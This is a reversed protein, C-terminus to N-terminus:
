ELVELIDTVQSVDEDPGFRTLLAERYWRVLWVARGLEARADFGLSLPGKLRAGYLNEGPYVPFVDPDKAAVVGAQAATAYVRVPNARTPRDRKM